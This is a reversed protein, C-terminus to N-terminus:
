SRCLREVCEAVGVQWDPIRIHFKEYLKTADLRSNGPRKAPTPFDKTMIPRTIATAGNHAQSEKFIESAFEYWSAEGTGASHYIGWLPSEPSQDGLKLLMDLIASALHPAYTPNGIQDSVVGVEDREGALRLMTKVFNSGFPSYVWSTRFIIHRPCTDAVLREGELKSAGYVGLPAVSDNETYPRRGSGDFVYDTSIHILPIDRDQCLRALDAPGQANLAYAQVEEEEAKDVATYAAANVVFDPMHELLATELSAVNTLDIDPRGLAVVRIGARRIEALSRALQGSAGIVLVTISM